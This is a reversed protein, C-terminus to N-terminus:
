RGAGRLAETGVDTVRAGDCGRLAPVTEEQSSSTEAGLGPVVM